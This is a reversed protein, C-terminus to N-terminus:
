QVIFSSFLVGNIPSPEAKRRKKPKVPAEDDDSEAVVKSKKVPAEVEYGLTRSVETVIDAALKEKGDRKLLEDSTRQSVLMLVSSRIAPLYTKIKDGVKENELDLTVGIQAFREGGPDALNVVMNELALYTPAAAHDPAHAAPEEEAAAHNKKNMYFWGGAAGGGLVLAAVIILLMPKGKRKPADPAPIAAATAAPASM